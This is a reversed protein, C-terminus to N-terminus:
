PARSSDALPGNERPLLSASLTIPLIASRGVTAQSRVLVCHRGRRGLPLFTKHIYPWLEWERYAFFADVAPGPVQSARPGLVHPFSISLLAFVRAADDKTRGVACPGNVRRRTM